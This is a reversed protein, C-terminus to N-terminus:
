SARFLVRPKQLKKCFFSELQERLCDVRHHKQVSWIKFPFCPALYSMDRLKGPHRASRGWRSLPSSDMQATPPAPSRPKIESKPLDGPPPLPLGSWYLFIAQLIGHVSSGPSSYNKPDCLTLYSQLSKASM